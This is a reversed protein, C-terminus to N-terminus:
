RRCSLGPLCDPSDLCPHNRLWLALPQLFPPLSVKCTTYSLPSQLATFSAWSCPGSLLLLFKPECRAKEGPHALPCSVWDHVWRRGCHLVQLGNTPELILYVPNQPGACRVQRRGRLFGERMRSGEFANRPISYMGAARMRCKWTIRSRRKQCISICFRSLSHSV